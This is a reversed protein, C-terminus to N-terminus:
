SQYLFKLFRYPDRHNLSPCSDSRMDPAYVILFTISDFSVWIHFARPKYIGFRRRIKCKSLLNFSKKKNKKKNENKVGFILKFCFTEICFIEINEIKM